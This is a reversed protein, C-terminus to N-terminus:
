ELEKAGEDTMLLSRRVHLAFLAFNGDESSSFRKKLVPCAELMRGKRERSKEEEARAEVRLWDRTGPKLCVIQVEPNKKMQAYVDKRNSTSVYLIGDEEMVAGFPRTQPKDGETTSLFFAGCERLFDYIKSM